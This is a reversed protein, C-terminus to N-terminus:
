PRVTGDLVRVVGARRREPSPWVLWAYDASDTGGGTFSPRRSLVYVDPCDDRLIAARRRSALFGLRLLLATSAAVQRSRALFEEALSYPPNTLVCDFPVCAKPWPVDTLFDRCFVRALPILGSTALAVSRAQDKECAWWEARLGAVNAAGIIAGRGVCPELIRLPRDTQATSERLRPQWEQLLWEVCWAPTEYFDHSRREAGRNTSSM